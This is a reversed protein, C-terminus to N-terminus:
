VDSISNLLNNIFHFVVFNLFLNIWFYEKDKYQQYAVVEDISWSSLTLGSRSM